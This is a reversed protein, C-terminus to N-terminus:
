LWSSLVAIVASVTGCVIIGQGIMQNVALYWLLCRKEVFLGGSQASSRSNNELKAWLILHLHVNLHWILGIGDIVTGRVVFVGDQMWTM